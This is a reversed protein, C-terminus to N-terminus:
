AVELKKEWFEASGVQPDLEYSSFGTKRYLKQAISNGQLVELTVKCAGRDRAVADVKALLYSGIGQGRYDPHVVMDHINVLPACAFTSFGEFCNVLGVPTSNSFAIISFAYPRIALEGILCQKAKASLPKGGGMPDRSYVDMLTLIAESHTKENYNAIIYDM